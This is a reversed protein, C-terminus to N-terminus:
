AFRKIVIVGAALAALGWFWMVTPACVAVPESSMPGPGCPDPQDFCNKTWGYCAGLGQVGAAIPLGTGTDIPIHVPPPGGGGAPSYGPYVTPNPTAVPVPYPVPVVPIPAQSTPSAVPKLWEYLVFAGVGAAALGLMKDM